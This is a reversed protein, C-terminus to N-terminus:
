KKVEWDSHLFQDLSDRPDQSDQNVLASGVILGFVMGLIPLALVPKYSPGAILALIGAVLGLGTWLLGALLIVTGQSGAEEKSPWGLLHGLLGSLSPICCSTIALFARWIFLTVRVFFVAMAVATIVFLLAIWAALVGEANERQHM